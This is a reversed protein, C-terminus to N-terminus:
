YTLQFRFQFFWVVDFRSTKRQAPIVKGWMVFKLADTPQWCLPGGREPLAVPM